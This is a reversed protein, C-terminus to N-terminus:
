TAMPKLPRPSANKPGILIRYFVPVALMTLLTSFALGGMICVAMEKFFPDNLLPSMGAITTGSALIVPRLRSISATALNELTLGSENSRKDIEDVLVVGNKILMGTLSLFGLFAPFTFGLDTALLSIVVGCVIMPVTLWIVLAQKIRGFLLITVLVMVGFTSPIVSGLSERAEGNSEFQGGWELRYGPPLPIAEVPGRLKAFYRAFNGGEPPNAQATLTRIRNRRLIQADAGELTLGQVIQALPVYTQETRSWVRRQLLGDLNQRENVPARAIIPLLDDKDRFLGVPVGNTAYGISRYVDSRSVGAMRGRADNYDPTLQLEPQRWDLKLAALGQQQYIKIAENGLRRLTQADPGSFRAEIKSAGGPSFESRRVLVDADPHAATVIPKAAQMAEQMLSVDPVRVLLHAYAANPQEPNITTAFRLPGRGVFTTVATVNPVQLLQQEAKELVAATTHIDTGQPLNFDVFFLPSSNTPFFEQKVKTFGWLCTGTIGVIVLTALWVHRLSLNLLWRYPAYGWGTYLNETPNDGTKLLRSGLMPVISIALAWSLMLSMAVVWFLTRLFFGSDNDSLGIPAFALIGIVTAGLLPFQTRRVANEAATAPSQGRQVGIIMGEAVVIANDVLMGMSIMLAGLSIRQLEIGFLAMCMLTGGVTLILVAGVVTGARWGMFVCLAGIVTIISLLLNRMFQRISDAVVTHQLSIPTIEFGLPLQPALEALRADVREGVDVVNQGSTVSVGLLFVRDGNYRIIENPVEVNERVITAIDSLRLIETSGPAGIRLEGVSAVSNLTAPPAIRLRREGHAVSGVAQVQNQTALSEFITEIPIGLRLLRTAPLEVYIAEQPLGETRVKAVGSVGKIEREFLDAVDKQNTTPYDATSIAYLMGYVDTFDDRVIPTHAGPPLRSEIERIRRRMEDWIQRTDELSYQELLRLQVESRGSLSKSHMFDLQPIQQIATEILDTVEQEVEEASAGPYPTVILANKVPFEPDELRGVNEIGWWGGFLCIVILLWPYLPQEISLRAISSRAISKAQTM